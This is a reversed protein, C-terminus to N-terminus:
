PSSKELSFKEKKGIFVAGEELLRELSVWDIRTAGLARSFPLRRAGILNSVRKPSLGLREATESVTLWRREFPM